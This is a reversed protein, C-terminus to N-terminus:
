IATVDRLTNGEQEVFETLSQSSLIRWCGVFILQEKVLYGAKYIYKKLHYYSKGLYFIIEVIENTGTCKYLIEHLQEKAESYDKKNYKELAKQLKVSCPVEEKITKKGGCNIISLISFFLVLIKIKKLLNLM